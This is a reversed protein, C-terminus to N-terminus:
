SKYNIFIIVTVKSTKCSALFQKDWKKRGRQRSSPCSQLASSEEIWRLPSLPQPVLFTFLAGVEHTQTVEGVRLWRVKISRQRTGFSIKSSTHLTLRWKQLFSCLFNMLSSCITTVKLSYLPHLLEKKGKYIKPIIGM